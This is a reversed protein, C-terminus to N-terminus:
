EYIELLRKEYRTTILHVWAEEDILDFVHIVLEGQSSNYDMWATGPTSTIIIALIGLGVPHRLRLPITVFGSHREQRNGRLIISAVAINSRVIDYLVIGVLSLIAGWKGIRPSKEGLARLSRSALIAVAAALVFQGPTFGSLLLWMLMLSLTLVPHPIITRM